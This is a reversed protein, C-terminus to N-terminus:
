KRHLICVRIKTVLEATLCTLALAAFPMIWAAAKNDGQGTRQLILQLTKIVAVQLIYILSANRDVFELYWPASGAEKGNGRVAYMFSFLALLLTGLYLESDPILYTEVAGLAASAAILLTLRKRTMKWATQNEQRERILYGALFCPLGCFLWNRVYPIQLNHGLATLAEGLVLNGLLLLVTITKGIRSYWEQEKVQRNRGPLGDVFSLLLLYCYWLAGLFWLHGRLPTENFLLFILLKKWSLNEATWVAVNEGTLYLYAWDWVLYFLNAGAILRFLHGARKRIKARSIRYSYFGAIMFFVPVGFSAVGRIIEGTRGPFRCHILFIATVSLMKLQNVAQNRETHEKAKRNDRVENDMM